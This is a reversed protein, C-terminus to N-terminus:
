GIEKLIKRLAQVPNAAKTIPSGCVLIDAGKEMAERPKVTEKHRRDQYWAPRIGPVVKIIDLDDVAQLTTGPLIIGDCGSKFAVESLHRVTEPLSRRFHERCYREDFHSLVTLGLVKTDRDRVLKITQSLLEDALAYVNFFDIGQAILNEAISAMTRSGNWMKLDAFVPRGLSQIDQLRAQISRGPSLLYDLNLKFGFQGEVNVLQEAMGFTEEERESLADLAIFLKPNM